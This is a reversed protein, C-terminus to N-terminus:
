AEAAEERVESRAEDGARGIIVRRADRRVRNGASGKAESRQPGSQKRKRHHRCHLDHAGPQAHNGTAAQGTDNAM